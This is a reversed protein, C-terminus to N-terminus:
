IVRMSGGAAVILSSGAPVTVTGPVIVVSTSPVNMEVAAGLVIPSPSTIRRSPLIDTDGLTM